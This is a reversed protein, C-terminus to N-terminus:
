IHLEQFALHIQKAIFDAHKQITYKPLQLSFLGNTDEDSFGPFLVITADEKKLDRKIRHIAYSVDDSSKDLGGRLEVIPGLSSKIDLRVRKGNYEIILDGGRLDDNITGPVYNVATLDLLSRTIAETRAGRTVQEIDHEITDIQRPFYSLAQKILINELDALKGLPNAYMFDSLLQNYWIAYPKFARLRAMEDEPLWRTKKDYEYVSIEYKVHLFFPVSALLKIQDAISQDIRNHLLNLDCYKQAYLSLANAYDITSKNNTDINGDTLTQKFDNDGDFSLVIDLAHNWSAAVTSDHNNSNNELATSTTKQNM